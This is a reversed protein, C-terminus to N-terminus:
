RKKVRAWIEDVPHSKNLAYFHIGPAGGDLLERCQRVAFEIGAAVTQAPDGALPKFIRHVEEPIGAGCRECFRVLAAYDTIPLVGPIVRSEVGLARLRRVYDFYRANDFFLQTIVFDAGSRIKERLYEADAEASAAMPHKEPFGAVGISVRPGFRRRIFAVLESSYRFDGQVVLGDKPPDGRLALVNEIRRREFQDLIEEIDQRSQSICTLHAMAPVGHASQIYEVVDLTKDRNGGGAGYTCSMFDPGLASLRELTKLLRAYAEITSVPFVEFSFTEAKKQFIDRILTM